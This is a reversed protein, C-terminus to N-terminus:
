PSRERFRPFPLPSVAPAAVTCSAPPTCNNGENSETVADPIDADACVQFQYTGPVTPTWSNEWREEETDPDVGARELIGTDNDIQLDGTDDFQGNDNTDVRLRTQSTRDGRTGGQNVVTGSFTVPQGTVPDEGAEGGVLGSCALGRVVYDARVSVACVFNLPDSVNDNENSENKINNEADAVATFAHEGGTVTGTFSVTKASSTEGAKLPRVTQSEEVRQNDLLLNVKSFATADQTGRNAVKAKLKIKDTVGATCAPQQNSGKFFQVSQPLPVYNPAAAPPVTFSREDCNQIEDSETVVNNVDTCIKFRHTGTLATWANTWQETEAPHAGDRGDLPGTTMNPFTLPRNPDSDLFITLSTAFLVGTGPLGLNKVVGSFSMSEGPKIQGPEPMHSLNEVILNPLSEALFTVTATSTMQGPFADNARWPPSNLTGDAIQRAITKVNGNEWRGAEISRTLTVNVVGSAAPTSTCALELNNLDDAANVTPRVSCSVGPNSTTVTDTFPGRVPKTLETAPTAACRVKSPNSLLRELLCTHVGTMDALYTGGQLFTIPPTDFFRAAMGTAEGSASIPITFRVGGVFPPVNGSDNVISSGDLLTDMNLTAHLFRKSDSSVDRKWTAVFTCHSGSCSRRDLLALKRMGSKHMAFATAAVGLATAGLALLLLVRRLHQM